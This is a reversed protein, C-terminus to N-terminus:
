FHFTHNIVSQERIVWLTQWLCYASPMFGMKSNYQSDLKYSMEALMSFKGLLPILGRLMLIFLCHLFHDLSWAPEDWAKLILLRDPILTEWGTTVGNNLSKLCRKRIAWGSFTLVMPISKIQKHVTTRQLLILWQLMKVKKRGVLFLKWWRSFAHRPNHKSTCVSNQHHKVM